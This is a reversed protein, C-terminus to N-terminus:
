DKYKWSLGLSTKIQGKCCRMISSPDCGTIRAAERGSVFKRGDSCIVSIGNFTGDRHRDQLNESHTGYRLNSVSNDRKGNPGHCVEKGTPKPGIFTECVLQHVMRKKGTGAHLNVGLYGRSDPNQKLIRGKWRRGSTTLRDLGRVRGLNSVQYSGGYGIVDKWVENM